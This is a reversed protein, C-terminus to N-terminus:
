ATGHNHWNDLFSARKVNERKIFKSYKKLTTDATNHGLMASVWLLNEGQNLMLSAFSHRTQYISRYRVDAKKLIKQFSYRINYSSSYHVNKNSLFVFDSRMKTNFQQNKIYPLCAEIIDITRKSSKTKPTQIYGKNITRNISITNELFNIDSWKLGILEGTRLGTFFAVGLLNKFHGPANGLISSIEELTFPDIEYDSKKAVIKVSQLPNVTIIDDLICDNFTQNLLTRAFTITSSSVDNTVLTNQWVKIDRPKINTILKNFYPQIFTKYVSEYAMYSTVKLVKQKEKLLELVLDNVFLSKNDFDDTLLARRTFKINTENYKLGTSKRIRKALEVYDVYLIGKREYFRLNM